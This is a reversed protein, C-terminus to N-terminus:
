AAPPDSGIFAQQLLKAHEHNNCWIATMTARIKNTRHQKIQGLLYDAGKLTM